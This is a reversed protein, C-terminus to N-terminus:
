RQDNQVEYEWVFGHSQKYKGNLCNKIGTINHVKGAERISPWIQVIEGDITKQIIPKSSKNEAGRAYVRNAQRKAIQEATWKKGFNPNNEGSCDYHNERMKQKASESVTRGSNTISLKKRSAESWKAGKEGGSTLNYGYHPDNSKYSNILTREVVCADSRSLGRLVIEHKINEWGYKNIAKYFLPNNLYGKGNRWREQPSKSTIGIYTKGNPCTHKYVTCEGPLEAMWIGSM